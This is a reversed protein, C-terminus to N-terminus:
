DCQCEEPDVDRWGDNPDYPNGSYDIEGDDDEGFVDVGSQKSNNFDWESENIADADGSEEHMVFQSDPDFHTSGFVDPMGQQDPQSNAFIDSQSDDSSDDDFFNSSPDFHSGDFIDTMDRFFDPQNYSFIDARFVSNDFRRNIYDNPLSTLLFSSFENNTLFRDVDYWLYDYSAVGLVDVIGIESLLGAHLLDVVCNRRHEVIGRMQQILSQFYGYLVKVPNDKVEVIARYLVYGMEGIPTHLTSRNPFRCVCSSFPEFVDSLESVNVSTELFRDPLYLKARASSVGKSEMIECSLVVKVWERVSKLAEEYKKMLKNDNNINSTGEYVALDSGDTLERAKDATQKGSDVLYKSLHLDLDMSM